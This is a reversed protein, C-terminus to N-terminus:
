YTTTMITGVCGIVAWRLSGFPRRYARILCFDGKV